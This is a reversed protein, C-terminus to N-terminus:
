FVITADAISKNRISLLIIKLGDIKRCYHEFVHMPHYSLLRGFMFKRISIQQVMHEFMKFHKRILSYRTGDLLHERNDSEQLAFTNLSFSFALRM